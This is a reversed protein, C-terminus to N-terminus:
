CAKALTPTDCVYPEVSHCCSGGSAGCGTNYVALCSDETLAHIRIGMCPVPNCGNGWMMEGGANTFPLKTFIAKVLVVENDSVFVPEALMKGNFTSGMSANLDPVEQIVTETGTTCNAKVLQITFETCNAAACEISWALGKVFVGPGVWRVLTFPDAATFAPLKMLEDDLQQDETGTHFIIKVASLLRCDINNIGWHETMEGLSIKARPVLLNDNVGFALRPVDGNGYDMQPMQEFVYESM